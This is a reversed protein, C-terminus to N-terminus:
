SSKISGEVGKFAMAGPALIGGVTRSAEPSMGALPQQVEYPHPEIEEGEVM